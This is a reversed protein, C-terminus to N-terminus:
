VYREKAEDIFGQLTKIQRMNLSNYFLEEFEITKLERWEFEKDSRHRGKVKKLVKWELNKSMEELTVRLAFHCLEHILVRTTGRKKDLCIIENKYDTLGWYDREARKESKKFDKIVIVWGSNVLYDILLVFFWDRFRFLSQKQKM